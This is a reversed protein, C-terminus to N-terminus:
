DHAVQQPFLTARKNWYPAILRRLQTLAFSKNQQDAIPSFDVMVKCTSCEIYHCGVCAPDGEGGHFFVKGCCFPCPQLDFHDVQERM